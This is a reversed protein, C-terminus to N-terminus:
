AIGLASAIVKTSEVKDQGEPAIAQVTVQDAGADLHGHIRAVAEQGAPAIEAVIRASGGDAVDAEDFGSRLLSNRYNTLQLYREISAKGLRTATDPDPAVIFRQEPALVADPGMISRASSTHAIPTLFPHAGLTREASLQLMRPGLAALLMGDAPVDEQNLADLFGIMAEMPRKAQDYREPHSVGLGLIFRGPHRQEIRHYSAALTPPDCAFINVIGTAIILDETADLMQEAIELDQPPSGGVWMTAFGNEEAAAALEPTVDPARWWMAYPGMRNKIDDITSNDPRDSMSDVTACRWPDTSPEMARLRTMRAPIPGCSLGFQCEDQRYHLQKVLDSRYLTGPVPHPEEGLGGPYSGSTLM